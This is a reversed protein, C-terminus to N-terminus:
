GGSGAEGGASGAEGGGSGAEGGGSGAKGADDGTALTNDVECGWSLLCLALATTWVRGIHM